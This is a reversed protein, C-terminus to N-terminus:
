KASAKMSLITLAENNRTVALVKGYKRTNIWKLDRVQGDLASLGTQHIYTMSNDKNAAFLALPQADYRGEYPIVNFFNGGAVWKGPQAEAFSFVPALQLDAPLAMRSFGGKGDNIFCSSELVEAKLEAYDKFLDYLM